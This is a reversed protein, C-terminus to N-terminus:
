KKNGEIQNLLNKIENHYNFFYDSNLVGLTWDKFRTSFEIQHYLYDHTPTTTYVISKDSSLYALKNIIIVSSDNYSLESINDKPTSNEHVNVTKSIMATNDKEKILSLDKKIEIDNNLIMKEANTSIQSDNNNKNELENIESLFTEFSNM